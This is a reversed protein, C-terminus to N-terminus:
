ASIEINLEDWRRPDLVGSGDTALASLRAYAHDHNGVPDDVRRAIEIYAPGESTPKDAPNVYISLQDPRNKQLSKGVALLLTKRIGAITLRVEPVEALLEKITKIDKVELRVNGFTDAYAVRGDLGIPPILSPDAPVLLEPHVRAQTVSSSRYQEDKLWLGSNNPIRHFSKLLGRAQLGRFYPLQAFVQVNSQTVGVYFEDGNEKQAHHTTTRPAHNVVVAIAQHLSSALTVLDPHLDLSSAAEELNDTDIGEKRAREFQGERLHEILVAGYEGLQPWPGIAFESDRFRGKNHADDTLRADFDDISRPTQGGIPIDGFVNSFVITAQRAKEFDTM